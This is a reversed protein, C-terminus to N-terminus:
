SARAQFNFNAAPREGHLTYLEEVFEVFIPSTLMYTTSSGRLFLGPFFVIAARM